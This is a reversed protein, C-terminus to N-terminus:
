PPLPPRPILKFMAEAKGGKKKKLIFDLRLYM